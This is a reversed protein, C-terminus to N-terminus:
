ADWVRQLEDETHRTWDAQIESFAKALAGELTSKVRAKSEGSQGKDNLAAWTEMEAFPSWGEEALKGAGKAKGHSAAGGPDFARGTARAFLRGAAFWGSRLYGIGRMRAALAKAAAQKFAAAGMKRPNVGTRRLRAAFIAQFRTTPNYQAKPKKLTKGSKGTTIYTVGLAEIAPRDAMRTNRIAKSVADNMTRNINVSLSKSSRLMRAEFDRQFSDMDFDITIGESM